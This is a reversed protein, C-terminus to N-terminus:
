YNIFPSHDLHIGPLDHYGVKQSILFEESLLFFSSSFSLFASLHFLSTVTMISLVWQHRSDANIGIVTRRPYRLITFLLWSHYLGMVLMGLPVLVYDLSQEDM